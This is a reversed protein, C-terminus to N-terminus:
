SFAAVVQSHILLRVIELERNFKLPRHVLRPAYVGHRRKDDRSYGEGVAEQPCQAVGDVNVGDIVPEHYIFSRRSQM